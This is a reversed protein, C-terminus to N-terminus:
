GARAILAIGDSQWQWGSGQPAYLRGDKDLVRILSRSGGGSVAVANAVTGSDLPLEGLPGVTVKVGAGARSLTVLRMEDVWDVDIPVGQVVMEAVATEALAAPRARTDRVIGAVMVVTTETGEKVLMALRNGGPSVRVAVPVRDGLGPMRLLVPDGGARQVLIRDPASASYSWVYGFRDLGPERLGKRLDLTVLDKPSVWSVVPGNEGRHRVAASLRDPALAVADPRLGVIRAGIRPLAELQGGSLTGLQGERLVTTALSEANRAHTDPAAVLGSDVTAGNVSIEFGTVGPVSQLSAAIQKKILEMNRPDATLLESSFEIRATGDNVPVANSTLATGSPFATRLAERGAESPGSILEGIIQTSLTTRNLFWRTEAVLRNDPTLFYVQRPTWVTTFSSRDLIVNNPASAIRWEGRVKEFEFRMVTPPGPRLPTLTGRADVAALGSVLLEGVREDVSRYPQTGEDVFVGDAPAWQNAYGPTLFQRAVAYDDISSTAARVFGRVIEEQDAGETPGIPNFQVPQEGQKLSALGERVPGDGPVAQCAVLGAALLVAAAATLRRALGVARRSGHTRTGITM